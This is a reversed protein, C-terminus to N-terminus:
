RTYLGGLFELLLRERLPAPAEALLANIDAMRTPLGTDGGM